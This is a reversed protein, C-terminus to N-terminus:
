LCGTRGGPHSLSVLVPQPLLLSIDPLTVTLRDYNWVPESHETVSDIDETQMQVRASGRLKSGTSGQIFM